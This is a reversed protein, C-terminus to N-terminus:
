AELWSLLVLALSALRPDRNAAFTISFQSVKLRKGWHNWIKHGFPYLCKGELICCQSSDSYFFYFLLGHQNIFVIFIKICHYSLKGVTMDSWMSYISFFNISSCSRHGVTSVTSYTFQVKRLSYEVTCPKCYTSKLCWVSPPVIPEHHLKESIQPTSLYFVLLGGQSIQFDEQLRTHM